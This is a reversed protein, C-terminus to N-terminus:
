YTNFSSLDTTSAVWGGSGGLSTILSNIGLINDPYSPGAGGGGLNWGTVLSLKGNVLLFAPNGSDGGIVSDYYFADRTTTSLTSPFTFQADNHGPFIPPNPSTSTALFFLDRVTATKDPHTYKGGNSLDFGGGLLGVAPITTTGAISPIYKFYNSPLILCPKITSPMDASLVGVEIDTGSVNGINAVTGTAVNNNADVFRVVTGIGYTNHNALIIHRPSILTGAAQNGQASNWVSICSTDVGGATLWNSANRVYIDNTHDESTFLKLTTTTAGANSILTDIANSDSQALSGNAYGILSTATQGIQRFVTVPIQRTLWSITANINVTGDVVRTVNGNGDITAVATNNSFFSPSQAGGFLATVNVTASNDITAGTFTQFIKDKSSSTSTISGSIIVQRPTLSMLFDLQSLQRGMIRMGSNIGILTVAFASNAWLAIFLVILIYYISKKM